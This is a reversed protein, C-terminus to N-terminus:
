LAQLKQGFNQGDPIAVEPSCLVHKWHVSCLHALISFIQWLETAEVTRALVHGINLGAAQFCEFFIPGAPTCDIRWLLNAIRHQLIHLVTLVQCGHSYLSLLVWPEYQYSQSNEEVNGKKSMCSSCSMLERLGASSKKRLKQRIKRYAVTSKIITTHWCATNNNLGYTSPKWALTCQPPIFHYDWWLYQWSSM